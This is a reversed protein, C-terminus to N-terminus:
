IIGIYDRYNGNEKGDDGWIVRPGEVWFRAGRQRRCRWGSLHPAPREIGWAWTAMAATAEPLPFDHPFDLLYLCVNYIYIYTHTCIYM